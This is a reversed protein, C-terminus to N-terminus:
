TGKLGEPDTRSVTIFAEFEKREIPYNEGLICLM